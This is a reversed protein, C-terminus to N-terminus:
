SEFDIDKLLTKALRLIIPEEAYSALPFIDVLAIKM